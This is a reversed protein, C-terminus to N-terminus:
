LWNCLQLVTIQNNLIEDRFYEFWDAFPNFGMKLIMCFTMCM